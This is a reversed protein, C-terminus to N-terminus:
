EEFPVDVEIVRKDDGISYEVSASGPLHAYKATLRAAYRIVDDDIDGRIITVPGPSDAVHLVCDEAGNLGLVLLNENHNRGVIVQTDGHWFHRGVKLLEIDEDILDSKVGLLDRLRTSFERNTLLCGGAPASYGSLGYKEALDLQVKRGRGEIGLLKERDVWGEREPITMKLRKASLPRLLLGEVGSEREVRLLSGKNQSMPRQGLVEGTAIFSAGESELLEGAKRIMYIHCDICPNFNSGYGHKPNKLMDIYDDQAKIRIFRVGLDEAILAAHDTKGGSFRTSVNVGIVEINQECLLKVALASDLGGSILVLTKM